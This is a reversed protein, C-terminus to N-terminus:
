FVYWVPTGAQPCACEEAGACLLPSYLRNYKDVNKGGVAAAAAASVAAALVVATHARMTPFQLRAPPHTFANSVPGPLLVPHRCSNAISRLLLLFPM